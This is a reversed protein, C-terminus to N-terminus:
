KLKNKFVDMLLTNPNAPLQSSNNQYLGFASEHYDHYNFNIGYEKCIDLMDSVWREGGRGEKFADSICGFEGLYLPVNNDKSFKLYPEITKVLSDKNRVSISACSLFDLRIRARTSANINSGRAYGSIEYSHGQTVLFKYTDTSLNADSTTDSIRMSGKGDHGEKPDYVGYGKSIGSQWYYWNQLRDFKINNIEKVFNGDEDYEKITIDDFWVSGNLGTNQAQLSPQAYMYKKNTIKVRNGQLYQWDSKDPAITPNSDTCGEWKSSGIVSFKDNDPYKCFNGINSPVWSANQHTFEMPEYIHFEYAINNDKILFLNMNGNRNSNWNSKGTNINKSANLREVIIMHNKDVSRVATVIKKALSKWQDFTKEETSLEAVNPENLFDFAMITPENKYHKAIAKWLAILRLQNEKNTWLEMGNGNSQYGGQPFHMNLILKMNYKKAWTINKDLWDWGSQKYHYPAADEEFIRYNMYFRISNFGLSSLERYSDETHHMTPPASPNSWVDNGFAIGKILLPHNYEDMINRGSTHIFGKTVKAKAHAGTIFQSNGASLLLAICLLCSVVVRIRRNM